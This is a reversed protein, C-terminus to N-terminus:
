VVQIRLRSLYIRDSKMQDKINRHGAQEYFARGEKLHLNNCRFDSSIFSGTLLTREREREIYIYTYIYM